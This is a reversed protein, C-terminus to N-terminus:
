ELIVNIKDDLWQNFDRTDNNIFRNQEGKKFEEELDKLFGIEIGLKEGFNLATNIDNEDEALSETGDEHLVFVSECNKLMDKATEENIIAFLFGDVNKINEM